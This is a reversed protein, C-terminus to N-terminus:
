FISSSCIRVAAIPQRETAAPPKRDAPNQPEHLYLIACERSEVARGGRNLAL